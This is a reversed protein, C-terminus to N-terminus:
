FNYLLNFQFSNIHDRVVYESRLFWNPNFYYALGTGAMLGDDDGFDFGLRVLAEVRNGIPVTEVVNLWFGKAKENVTTTVDNSFNKTEFSGSDMYGLELATSINRNLKFDFLYGGIIQAGTANGGRSTNFGIGGGLYFNSAKLTISAGEEATAMPSIFMVLFFFVGRRM